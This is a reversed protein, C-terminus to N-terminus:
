NLRISVGVTVYIKGSGYGLPYEPYNDNRALGYYNYGTEAYVGILRTFAYCGGINIGCVIGGPTSGNDLHSGWLGFGWGIKALIFLDTNEINIFSPHWGLRFIVPIGLIISNDTQKKGGLLGTEIGYALGIKGNPIWDASLSGGLFVSGSDYEGASFSGINFTTNLFVTNPSQEMATVSEIFSISLLIVFILKRM